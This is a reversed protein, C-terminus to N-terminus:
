TANTLIPGKENIPNLPVLFNSFKSEGKGASKACKVIDIPKGGLIQVKLKFKQPEKPM